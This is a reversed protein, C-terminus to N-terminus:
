LGVLIGAALGLIGAYSLVSTRGLQNLFKESAGARALRALQARGLLVSQLFMAVLALAKVLTPAFVVAIALAALVINGRKHGPDVLLLAADERHRGMLRAFMVFYVVLTVAAMAFLSNAVLDISNFLTALM